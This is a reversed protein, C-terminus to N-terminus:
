RGRRRARAIWLLLAAALAGAAGQPGGARAAVACGAAPAAERPSAPPTPESEAELAVNDIQLLYSVLDNREADTLAGTAGHRDEPNRAGVVDFLTPASGDHLYPGTEWIGRLTPTDIGTLPGKLRQGSTAQLTGVDHLVGLSSDTFDPGGHCSACGARQFVALGRWGAETLSGDADRFPSPSVRDLSTVYEALADLEPSLGAKADGLTTNRTGQAFQEETLFGSGGFAGRIDHEFDQVEDFNASWHLPGQGTGRKGLLSTTNRLGEGRDTFDWTRGDDAGDLHCAACSIYGDKTMRLDSADYFVQKGRLVGEPLKEARSVVVEGIKELAFATSALVPAADLVVVTRSLFANLYLRGGDDLVLGDPAKGLEMTGGVIRRDYADLVEVGNNGLLAVFAYDGLPSFALSLGLARNNLDVRQALDEAKTALDVLSVITRVSTEFDLPLGDRAQGRLINDKKSPIWLASGDPNPVVARLYNPVGRATAETDPGPDLALPIRRTVALSTTDLEVLEGGESPSILRTVFLTSGTSDLAAGTAWPGAPATRLVELNTLDLEAVEGRAQLTVYARGRAADLVIGFPKSAHPLPVTALQSGDAALVSVSADDQNAVWLSGDPAVALSRPHRGVPAEFVVELTGAALCSVTDNDANVNCVRNQSRSFVITSSSAPPREPLVRHVTQLFSASRVSSSDRAVVIVPYHGPQDYVHTITASPSAENRQGDGFDWTYTLEGAGTAQASFEVPAGVAHPQNVRVTLEVAAAPSVLLAQALLVRLGLSRIM